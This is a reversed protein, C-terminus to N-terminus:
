IIRHDSAVAMTIQEINDEYFTIKLSLIRLNQLHALIAPRDFIHPTSLEIDPCNDCNRYIENGDADIKMGRHHGTRLSVITKTIFRVGNMNNLQHNILISQERLKFNVSVNADLPSVNINNKSKLTKADKALKHATENGTTGIHAPM